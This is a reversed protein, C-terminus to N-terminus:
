EVRATTRPRWPLLDTWASSTLLGRHHFYVLQALARVPATRLAYDLVWNPPAQDLMARLVRKARFRPYARALLEAPPPAGELLHRRIAMGLERGSALATHIGGATLPSVLGAADGALLVRGRAPPQVPGGIPILGGRTGVIRARSFDFLSRCHEFVLDLRPRAPLRTALGVQTVGVGPVVWALYGPAIRSDLFCHLADPLDTVGDVEAEVGALFRRNTGLGFARAVASHPGDAGVLFRACLDHDSLVVDQARERAGGFRAGYRVEAGACVSEAAYWRLLESTDTALFRYGPRELDIARLDPAYLRVREIPRCLRAPPPWERQAEPVLIGTTHVSAGPDPKRELVIVALGAQAASRALALGAFSAGVIAVDYRKM